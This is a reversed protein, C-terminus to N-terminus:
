LEQVKWRYDRDVTIAVDRGISLGYAVLGPIAANLYLLWFRTERKMGTGLM